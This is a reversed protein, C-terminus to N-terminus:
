RPAPQRYGRPAPLEEWGPQQEDGATLRLLRAATLDLPDAQVLTAFDAHAADRRGLLMYQYGRLFLAFTGPSRGRLVGTLAAVQRVHFEPGLARTNAAGETALEADELLALGQRLSTAAREYQGDAGLAQALLVHLQGDGDDEVLAHRVLRIADSYRQQRIAFVALRRYGAADQAGATVRTAPPGQPRDVVTYRARSGTLATPDIGGHAPLVTGVHVRVNGRSHVGHRGRGPVAPPRAPATVGPLPAAARPEVATTTAALQVVAATFLLGGTLSVPRYQSTKLSM